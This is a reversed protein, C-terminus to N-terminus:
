NKITINVIEYKMSRTRGKTALISAEDKIRFAKYIFQM